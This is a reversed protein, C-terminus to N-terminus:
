KKKAHKTGLKDAKLRKDVYVKVANKPPKKGDSPRAKRGKGAIMYVRTNKRRGLKDAKLRKDVYVKVANKPPKKGDSPRAKRGKGAIMYVRTNKRRGLKGYLKEIQKIKTRESLDQNDALVTAKRRIKNWIRQAKLKKRAKAEAVKKIPRANIAKLRDKYERVEAKTVPLNVTYNHNEDDKFWQPVNCGEDDFAYKNYSNDIIEMRKKKDCLLKTGIAQVEAIAESDTSDEDLVVPVEEFLCDREKRKEEDRKLRRRHDRNMKKMKMRVKYPLKLIEPLDDYKLKGDDDGKKKVGTGVDGKDKMVVEFDDEGKVDKEIFDGLQEIMIKEDLEENSEIDDFIDDAFWRKAKIMKSDPKLSFDKDDLVLGGGHEQESKKIIKDTDIANNNENESEVDMDSSNESDSDTDFEDDSDLGIGDKIRQREEKKTRLHRKRKYNKYLKDMREEEIMLEEDSDSFKDYFKKIKKKSKYKHKPITNDDTNLFATLQKKNEFQKLSFLGEQLQEQQGIDWVDNPQIGGMLMIRTRKIKKKVFEVNKNVNKANKMTLCKVSM